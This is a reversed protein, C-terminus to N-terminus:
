SKGFRYCAALVDLWAIQGLHITDYFYFPQYEKTSLDLVQAGYTRSLDAVRRYYRQRAETSLQRWDYWRGNFPPSVIM